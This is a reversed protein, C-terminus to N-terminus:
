GLAQDFLTAVGLAVLGLAAAAAVGLATLMLALLAAARLRTWWSRQDREVAEAVDPPM